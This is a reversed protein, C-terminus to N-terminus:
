KSVIVTKGIVKIHIGGEELIRFIEDANVNRYMKGDFKKDPVDKDIQIDLDYWRSLKQMIERVGAGNFYFIGNKWAMVEEINVDKVVKIEDKMCDAQQGPILTAKNNGKEVRVSGELLTTMIKGQDEYANVNFHTGLVEIKMDNVTVRFPMSKNHAVEFYAEGTIEVKRESGKFFVPYKISSASNLWVETGDPLLLHFQRAKPTTLTNYAVEDSNQNQGKYWLQGDVNIIQTGNQTAVTGNPMSDLVVVSGDSLTLIAGNSGPALKETIVLNDTAKSPKRFNSNYIVYFGLLIILLSAAVATLIQMRRVKGVPKQKDIRAKFSAYMEETFQEKEEEPLLWEKEENHTKEFWIQLIEVEEPTAIGAEYKNLLDLLQKDNITPM